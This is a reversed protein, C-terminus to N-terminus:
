GLITVPNQEYKAFMVPKTYRLRPNTRRAASIMNRSILKQRLLCPGGRLVNPSESFLPAGRDYCTDGFWRNWPPPSINGSFVLM